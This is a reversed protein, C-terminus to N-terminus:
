KNQASTSCKVVTHAASTGCASRCYLLINNSMTKPRGCLRISVAIEMVLVEVIEHSM